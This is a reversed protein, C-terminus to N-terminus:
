FCWGLAMSMRVAEIDNIAHAMLDGIKTRSFYSPSLTQLHLFLRDRIAKEVRRAAGLLLYRWIYRFGGIGLALILVELGYILLGYSSLVGSTLDDIAYKVIRPIFLQLVDVILLALLGILIRWRNKIFDDKITKFAKM